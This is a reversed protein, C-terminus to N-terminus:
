LFLCYSGAEFYSLSLVLLPFMEQIQDSKNKHLSYINVSYCLVYLMNGYANWSLLDVM